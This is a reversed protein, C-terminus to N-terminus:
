LHMYVCVCVVSVWLFGKCIELAETFSSKQHGDSCEGRDITELNVEMKPLSSQFPPLWDWRYIKLSLLAQHLRHRVGVRWLHVQLYFKSSSNVKPGTCCEEHRSEYAFVGHDTYVMSSLM